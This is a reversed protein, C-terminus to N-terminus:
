KGSCDSAQHTLKWSILQACGLGIFILGFTGAQLGNVAWLFVTIGIGLGLFNLGRNLTKEPTKDAGLDDFFLLSAPVDKGADILKGVCERRFEAKLKQSRYHQLILTILILVPGGFILLLAVVPVIAGTAPETEPSVGRIMNQLIQENSEDAPVTSAGAALAASKSAEDAMCLLPSTIFICIIICALTHGLMDTFRNLNM